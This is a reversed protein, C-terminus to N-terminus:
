RGPKAPAHRAKRATQKGARRVGPTEAPDILGHRRWGSRLLWSRAIATPRGRAGRAKRRETVKSQDVRKWGDFWRGSSAEDIRAPPAHGKQQRWHKRANLLVYTIANRVQRPTRLPQVHYRGSLVPGSRGFVRNVARALRASVSKMGRGLAQKGAAEVVLHAHDRQISYHVVRFEGRDCAKALSQRFERLFVKTRLSPLGRRVRLTVHVPVGKPLPARRVHHVIGRRRPKRGAGLRPGGRGTHMRHDTLTLQKVRRM